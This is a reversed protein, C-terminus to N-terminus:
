QVAEGMQIELKVDSFASPALEFRDYQKHSSIKEFQNKLYWKQAATNTRLVKLFIQGVGRTRIFACMMRLAQSMVGQRKLSQHGLICNYIEAGERRLKFGICGVPIHGKEVMFLLNDPDASYDKFWEKQMTRTIVEQFFFSKRNRNKWVRLRAQDCEEVSRLFLSRESRNRILLSEKM